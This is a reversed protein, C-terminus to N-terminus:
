VRVERGNVTIQRTRIELDEVHVYPRVLVPVAPAPVRDAVWRRGSGAPLAPLVALEPEDLDGVEFPEGARLVAATYAVLAVVAGVLLVYGFVPAVVAVAIWWATM